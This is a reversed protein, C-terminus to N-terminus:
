RPASRRLRDGDERTILLHRVIPLKHTTSMGRRDRKGECYSVLLANTAGCRCSSLGAELWSTTAAYPAADILAALEGRRTLAEVIATSADPARRFVDGTFVCWEECTECFVGSSGITNASLASSAFVFIAELAWFTGLLGGSVPATGHENGMTWAGSEYLMGLIELFTPPYVVVRWDVDSGMRALTFWEWPIWSAAYGGMATVTAIAMLWAVNRVKLAKGVRASAAGVLAGYVLPMLAGLYLYPDYVLAVAYVFGLVLALVGGVVLAGVLGVISVRGSARYFTPTM